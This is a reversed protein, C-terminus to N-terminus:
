RLIPYNVDDVSFILVDNPMYIRLKVAQVGVLITVAICRPQGVKPDILGIKESHIAGSDLMPRLMLAIPREQQVSASDGAGVRLPKCGKPM